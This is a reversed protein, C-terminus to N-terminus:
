RKGPLFELTLYPHCMRKKLLHCCLLEQLFDLLAWECRAVWM